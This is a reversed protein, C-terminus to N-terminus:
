FVKSDLGRTGCCQIWPDRERVHGLNQNSACPNSNSCANLDTVPIPEPTATSTPTLTPLPTSTPLAVKTQALLLPIIDPVNFFGTFLGM